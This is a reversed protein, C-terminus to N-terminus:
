VPPKSSTGSAAPKVMSRAIVAGCAIALACWLLGQPVDGLVLRGIGFLTGYVLGLGAVWDLLAIGLRDESGGPVLRAIPRWGSGAPRVREYFRTLTAETEPQTVFTVILWVVTTAVVTILLRKATANPDDGAVIGSLYCWSGVIASAAM